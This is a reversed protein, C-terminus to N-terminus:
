ILSLVKGKLRDAVISMLSHVLEDRRIPALSLYVEAPGIALGLVLSFLITIDALAIPKGRATHQLISGNLM